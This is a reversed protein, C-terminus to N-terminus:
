LNSREWARLFPLFKRGLCDRVVEHKLPLESKVALEVTKGRVVNIKRDRILGRLRDVQLNTWGFFLIVRLRNRRLPVAVMM